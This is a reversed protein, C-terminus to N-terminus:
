RSTAVPHCVGVRRAHLVYSFPYGDSIGQTDIRLTRPTIPEIISRGFNGNACTYHVEALAPADRIVVRTCAQGRHEWQSLLSIDAVCLRVPNEGNANHSVEWMGAAVDALARPGAALAAGPALLMMPLAFLAIRNM